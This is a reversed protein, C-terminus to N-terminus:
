SMFKREIEDSKLMSVIVRGLPDYQHNQCSFLEDFLNSMEKDSLLQGYQIATKRALVTAIKDQVKEKVTTGTEAVDTILEELLPITSGANIEAPVGNIAYANRGFLELDFGVWNLEPLIRGLVEFRNADLELIEPFLVQQSIGKQNQMILMMRDYLVRFHARHQDVIMLGSKAGTLLYRTKLQFFSYESEAYEFQQQPQPQESNSFEFEKEDSVPVIPSKDNAPADNFGAYLKEWDYDMRKSSSGSGSASFPNYNPNFNVAPPVITTRSDLVPIEPSGELDFDLSAVVQFKGLTEKIAALLISWIVQENEFKIETKQPHVNVDITSPDITLYIFYNPSENPKILKEYAVMVAKHFYPHRMYRNNVFFFQNSSKQAYEPRGVFGKISILETNAEVPLLQQDIKRGYVQEIRAKLSSSSLNFLETTDDYLSFSVTPNVLVIRFFENRIHTMETSQAKLFRRRAPVNFFLNKVAINTGKATQESKQKFVRTGAIEIYTGLEDEERRTRLEVQAVAAISALAEGRFGKTHLTFLDEANRIKSTAHREFCMRADTESMGVGDDIIQILTNGGDKIVVQIRTAGADISNEVLEKVVSAPRQIVEGAAIQNAVSDPLLNIVDSM